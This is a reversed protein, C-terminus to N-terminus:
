RLRKECEFRHPQPLRACLNRSKQRDESFFTIAATLEAYCTDALRPSAISCFTFSADPTNEGGWFLSRLASVTCSGEGLKTGALSCWTHVLKLEDTQLSGLDRVDRSGALVVFEKGFGGYCADRNIYDDEPLLNCYAFAKQFDDPTPKGLDAGAVELLHPTLYIYCIPEISESIYDTNCPFLPDDDKLYKPREKKWAKRDHDGGTILEMVQGGVCESYERYQYEPTGTKECLSVAKKFDYLTYALVGHGLGHFCMTYAGTGGPANRCVDSIDNLADVGREGFLGVVISHSCANRFDQTCDYIGDIGKQKYLIDGVVHGLLHLDTGAALDARRLTEFAYVAGKEDALNEFFDAYEDFSLNQGSIEKLEVYSELGNSLFLGVVLAVGFLALLITTSKYHPLKPM